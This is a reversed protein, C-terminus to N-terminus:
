PTLDSALPRRKKSASALHWLAMAPFLTLVPASEHTLMAYLNSNRVSAVHPAADAAIRAGILPVCFFVPALIGLQVRTM